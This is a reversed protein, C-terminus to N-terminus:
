KTIKTTAEDEPDNKDIEIFNQFVEIFKILNKM